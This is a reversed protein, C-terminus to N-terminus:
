GGGESEEDLLGLQRLDDFTQKAQEEDVVQLAFGAHVLVYQGPQVDPTFSFAVQKRVGAFDVTGRLFAPEDGEIDIVRGPVALCM